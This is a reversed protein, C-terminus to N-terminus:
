EETEKPKNILKGGLYGALLSKVDLGTAKELGAFIQTSNNTIEETLKATNGEGYMTISDIQSMAEAIPKSYANVIEPLVGSDLILQLTAAEGYQKMADAKAKIADAEARGKAEIGAAEALAAEKLANAKAVQAAAEAEAEIKLAEAAEAKAIKEAQAQIKQMEAKKKESKVKEVVAKAKSTMSKKVVPLSKEETAKNTEPQKPM